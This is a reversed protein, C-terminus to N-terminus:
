DADSNDLHRGRPDAAPLAAERRLHARVILRTLIRLGQELLEQAEDDPASGADAWVVSTKLDDRAPSRM